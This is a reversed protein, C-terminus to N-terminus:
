VRRWRVTRVGWSRPSSFGLARVAGLQLDILRGRVHPGSDRRVAIICRGGYCIQLSRGCPVLYTAIAVRDDRLRLGTCGERGNSDGTSYASAVGSQWGAHAAAQDMAGGVLYAFVGILALVLLFGRLYALARIQSTVTKARV